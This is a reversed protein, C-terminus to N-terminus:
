LWDIELRRELEELSYTVAAKELLKLILENQLTKANYTFRKEAYDDILDDDIENLIKNVDDTSAEDIFQLVDGVYMEVDVEAECEPCEVPDMLVKTRGNRTMNYRKIM